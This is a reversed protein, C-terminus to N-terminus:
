IWTCGKFIIASLLRSRSSPHVHQGWSLGVLDLSCLVCDVSYM